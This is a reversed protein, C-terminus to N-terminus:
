FALAPRPFAPVFTRFRLRRRRPKVDAAAATRSRRWEALTQEAADSEVYNMAHDPM